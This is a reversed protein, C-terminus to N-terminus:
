RAFSRLYSSPTHGTFQQFEAIFHSQDAYGCEAALGAHQGSESALRSHAHRFRLVRALFKPSLGTQSICVRRFQRPSLSAQRAIWDLSVSGPHKEMWAIARQVPTRPQPQPISQLLLSACEEASDQEAIQDLLFRAPAGWLDELPLITDRFGDGNIGLQKLWMGPRFRVGVHMMQPSLTYDAFHTMPGVVQLTIDNGRRTFLIDACGDPTVRHIASSGDTSRISWFCEVADALRPPPALEHYERM